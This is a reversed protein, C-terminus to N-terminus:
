HSSLSFKQLFIMKDNKFQDYILLMMSTIRSEFGPDPLFIYKDDYRTSCDLKGDIHEPILGIKNGPKDIMKFKFALSLPVDTFTTKMRGKANITTPLQVGRLPGINMLKPQMHVEGSSHM